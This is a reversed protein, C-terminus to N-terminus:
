LTLAPCGIQIFKLRLEAVSDFLICRITSVDLQVVAALTVIIRHWIVYKVSQISYSLIKIYYTHLINTFYLVNLFGDHVLLFADVTQM